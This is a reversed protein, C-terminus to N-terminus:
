NCMIFTNSSKKSWPTMCKFVLERPPNIPIGDRRQSSAGPSSDAKRREVWFGQGSTGACKVFLEALPLKTIGVESGSTRVLQQPSTFEYRRESRAELLPTRSLRTWQHDALCRGTNAYATSWPASIIKYMSVSSDGNKQRCGPEKKTILNLTIKLNLIWSSILIKHNIM